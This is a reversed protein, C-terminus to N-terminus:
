GKGIAAHLAGILALAAKGRDSEEPILDKGDKGTHEHDVKDRWEAPKRNKLWFIAATTDPAVHERVPARVIEGQHQFVKESEFTYGIAKHYLSAQVREDAAEKGTKLANCFEAFQNSWRWITTREVGFFDAM